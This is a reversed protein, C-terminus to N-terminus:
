DMHCAISSCLGFLSCFGFFGFHIGSLFSPRPTIVLRSYLGLWSLLGFLSRRFGLALSFGLVALWFGQYVSLSYLPHSHLFSPTFAARCFFLLRICLSLLWFLAFWLRFAALGFVLPFRLSISVVLLLNDPGAMNFGAGVFYFSLAFWSVLTLHLRFFWLRGNPCNLRASVLSWAQSGSIFGFFVLGLFWLSVHILTTLRCLLWLRGLWM